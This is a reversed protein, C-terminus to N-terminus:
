MSQYNLVFLFILISKVAPSEYLTSFKSNEQFNDDDSWMEHVDVGHALYHAIMERISMYAHNNDVIVPVPHPINSLVANNGEIYMSRTRKMREPIITYKWDTVVSHSHNDRFRNETSNQISCIISCFKKRKLRSLSTVFDAIRMQMKVEDDGLKCYIDPQNLNFNSRCVLFHNGFGNRNIQHYIRQEETSFDLTIEDCKSGSFSSLTSDEVKDTKPTYRHKKQMHSKLMTGNVMPKRMKDCTVCVSWSM